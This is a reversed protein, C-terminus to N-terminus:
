ELSLPGLHCEYLLKHIHRMMAPKKIYHFSVSDPACCEVGLKLGWELNYQEYWDKSKGPKPPRWSYHSGPSFPHFRERGDNDRTDEININFEKRLCQAIMVDEMPTHREPNCNRNDLGKHYFKSLASRSIVYGAGGSNFYNDPGGWNAKFRRGLFHDEDPNYNSLFNKLNQPLVYMDEGGMYFFDFEELYHQGIFAWISRVKQWMNEYEEKGTHPLSIAPIRPDSATSFALFGDCGPGWTERIARINTPHVKEMTYVGCFIKPGTHTFSQAQIPVARLLVINDDQKGGFTGIEECLEGNDNYPPPWINGAQDHGDIYMRKLMTVDPIWEKGGDALIPPTDSKLVTPPIEGWEEISDRCIAACEPKDNHGDKFCERWSCKKDNTTSLLKTPQWGYWPNYSNNNNSNSNDGEKENPNDNNQNNVKASLDRNQQQHAQLSEFQQRIQNAVGIKPKSKLNLSSSDSEIINQHIYIAGLIWITAFIILLNLLQSRGGAISNRTSKRSRPM